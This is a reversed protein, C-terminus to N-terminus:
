KKYTKSFNNRANTVTFTGDRRVSVKILKGECKEDMNAVLDAPSNKEAASPSYHLQWLDEFGPSSKVIDIVAAEGGKRAGNNMIAVKPRLAHVLLKSNSKAFGHHSVMFLDVTGVKNGPCMLSYEQTTLLDAFDAMRFRGFEVLTGISGPNDDTDPPHPQDVGACFPNPKGAGPLPKALVEASSTLVTMKVGKIPIVDGPKVQIRKKGEVASLYAQYFKPGKASPLIVGHDVFVRGPIRAIVQPVNGAHDADYHTSVVYDFQKIGLAQAQSVIRDTDRNDARPYGADILMTEGSPSVLIIAKGGDSDLVYLDLTDAARLVPVLLLGVLCALLPKV